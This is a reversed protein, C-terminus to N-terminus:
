GVGMGSKPLGGHYTILVARCSMSQWCRRGLYTKAESVSCRRPQSHGDDERCQRLKASGSHWTKRGLTSLWAHHLTNSHNNSESSSLVTDETM